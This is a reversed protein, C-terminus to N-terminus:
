SKSILPKQCQSKYPSNFTTNLLGLVEEYAEIKWWFFENSWFEEIITSQYLEEKYFKKSDNLLSHVESIIDKWVMIEIFWKSMLILTKEDLDQLNEWLQFTQYIEDDQIDRWENPSIEVFDDDEPSYEKCMILFPFPFKPHTALYHLIKIALERSITM